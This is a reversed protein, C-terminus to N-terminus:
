KENSMELERLANVLAANEEPTGISIRLCGPVVSSRDRILIGRDSLGHYFRQPDDFEVLLFNADSPWVKRVFHQKELWDALQMREQILTQVREETGIHDDLAKSAVQQTLLNVNYPPKIKNFVAIVAENALAIGLRIGALGWAKSLTQLVVLNPYQALLPVVSGEPAFDIYAEDVVVLGSSAEALRAITEKDILNATPNNPSCIFTLKPRDRQLVELVAELNVSFDALLPVRILEVDNIGASVEYMGYTPPCILVKDIRPECFGRFLLDIAEDSGNGLFM